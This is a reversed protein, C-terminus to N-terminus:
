KVQFSKAIKSYYKENTKFDDYFVALSLLYIDKKKPSIINIHEIFNKNDSEYTQSTMKIQNTKQDILVELNNMYTYAYSSELLTRMLYTQYQIQNDINALVKAMTLFANDGLAWANEMMHDWNQDITISLGDATAFKQDKSKKIAKTKKSTQIPSLGKFNDFSKDSSDAIKGITICDLALKGNSDYISKINFIPIIPDFLILVKGGFQPYDCSFRIGVEKFKNSKRFDPAEPSIEGVKIRKSSFDYLIDHLYNLIDLDESDQTINTLIKEGTMDWFNSKSNVTVAIAISKEPQKTEKSFPAFYRIQYTSEDYSLIGIYSERSFSYDRYYVYEGPSDPIYSITGPLAFLKLALTLIIFTLLHKKM